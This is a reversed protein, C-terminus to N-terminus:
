ARVQEAAEIFEGCQDATLKKVNSIKTANFIVGFYADAHPIMEPRFTTCIYQGTKSLEGIMAAVGTRRDADLNADIEDFLYFPAPDCKQIAFIMALAVLAKQGGSLQQIKLGENTKSNFSVRITVGVFNEVAVGDEAEEEDEDVDMEDDGRLGERRQMILEGKGAPVLKEFVTRFNDAVQKFTRDIAQDKRTDLTDILDTISKASEDLEEQRSTLDAQQKTFSTFQEFAKKNVHSFAKLAENVKRLRKLLKESTVTTEVFAEEPLVGLDRIKKNCEDKRQMLIQRKHLYREVNKQQRAITRQDDAHQAKKKEREKELSAVQANLSETETEIDDLKSTLDEIQKGLAKLERKRLEVDEGTGEQADKAAGGTGVTEIRSRLEERRRRLNESLDIELLNKRGAVDALSESLRALEKKLRDVEVNLQAVQAQEQVTLSQVMPTRLEAQYADREQTLNRADARLTALTTELKHIRARQREEDAQAAMLAMVMPEREEHTRALRGEVVQIQGVLQTVEQDLRTITRKIEDREESLRDVKGEWEKLNKVADLRSRRQDHYGGTLSGKRDYKDGDLTISNFGQSRAYRGAVELSKCVLTKGFVQQFAPRYQADFTLRDIIPVAENGEPYEMQQPHLRNLPMFTIRGSKEKIMVDLIQTATDDDDVVIQFLSTGATVEVAVKYRDEVTFLEFLAGHYGQLGLREAIARASAIGRATDRDVTASLNRQATKLQEMAHRLQSDLKADEKWVDKRKEVAEAQAVKHQALKTQMERIAEKRGDLEKRVEASGEQIASLTEKAKELDAELAQAGKEREQIAKGHGEVLAKLHRDREAQTRFQNRRGEKAHLVGLTTQATELAQRTTAESRSLDEFQPTVEMLETEAEHISGEVQELEQELEHLREEGRHTADEADRVICEVQAQSKTLDSREDSAERHEIRLIELRQRTATLTAELEAAAKERENTEERRTNASDVDRRREEEIQELAEAVDQLERQYIAYELSRRQRDQTQFQALEEKEEKLEDLRDSIFQLLDAIKGKKLNTEDMIKMSEARREEYVRTGAVEKLLALRDSDKQNTLHTIRGQPVIYYPNSRSFGASELLSMVEGKSTSKRDLQYEDKKLGITRRLLLTPKNTPFRGDANDFEVEVFASMTAGGGAGGNSGDHLLTQREERSLSTYADSLVFRIAAFFNSKGSGNRGVLLNLGSSFPDVITEDRYSKFGQIKLSKIHM